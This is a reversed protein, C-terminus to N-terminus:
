APFLYGALLKKMEQIVDRRTEPTQQQYAFSILREGAEVVIRLKLEM